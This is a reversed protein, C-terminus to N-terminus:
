ARDQSFHNLILCKCLSKGLIADRRSKGRPSVRRPSSRGFPFKHPQTSPGSQRAASEPLRIRRGASAPRVSARGSSMLETSREAISRPLDSTRIRTQHSTDLRGVPGQLAAAPTKVLAQRHAPLITASLTSQAEQEMSGPRAVPVGIADRSVRGHSEHASRWPRFIHPAIPRIDDERLEHRKGLRRSQVIRTDIADSDKGGPASPKVDRGAANGKDAGESMGTKSDDKGDPNASPASGRRHWPCGRRPLGADGIRRDARNGFSPCRDELRVEEADNRRHRTPHRAPRRM